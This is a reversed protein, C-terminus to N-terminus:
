DVDIFEVGICYQFAMKRCWAVRGLTRFVPKSVPFYLMIVTGPDLKVRSNRLLISFLACGAM